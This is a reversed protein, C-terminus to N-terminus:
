YPLAFAIIFNYQDKGWGMELRIRHDYHPPFGVRCGFGASFNPTKSFYVSGIDSFVLTEFWQTWPWRLEAQALYYRGSYFRGHRYGRLGEMGGLKFQYSYPIFDDLSLSSLLTRGGSMRLIWKEKSWLSFVSMAKIEAQFFGADLFDYVWQVYGQVLSGKKPNFKQDRTDRRFAWRISAGIERDSFGYCEEKMRTKVLKKKNEKKRVLFCPSKLEKRYRIDVGGGVFFGWRWPVFYYGRLIVNESPVDVRNVSKEKYLSDFVTDHELQFQFESRTQTWYFFNGKYSLFNERQPKWHVSGSLYMGQSTTPYIFVRGGLVHGLSGSRKYSPVVAWKHFSEKKSLFWTLSERATASFCIVAFCSLLLWKYKLIM